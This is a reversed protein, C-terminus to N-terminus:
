GVIRLGVAFDFAPVFGELAVADADVHREGEIVSPADDRVEDDMVVGDAQVAGDAIDGGLVAEFVAVLLDGIVAIALEGLGALAALLRALGLEHLPRRLGGDSRPGGDVEGGDAGGEGDGGDQVQEAELGVAAAAGLLPPGTRQGARSGGGATAEADIELLLLEVAELAAAGAVGQVQPGLRVAERGVIGGDVKAIAQADWQGRQWGRGLAVSFICRQIDLPTPRSSAMQKRWNM